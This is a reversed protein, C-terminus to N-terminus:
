STKPKGTKTQKNQEVSESQVVKPAKIKEIVEKKAWTFYKEFEVKFNEANQVESVKREIIRNLKGKFNPSVIERLTPDVKSIVFEKFYTKYLTEEKSNITINHDPILENLMETVSDEIIKNPLLDEFEPKDINEVGYQFIFIDREIYDKYKGELFKKLDNAPKDNDLIFIWKSVLQIPKDEFYKQIDSCKGGQYFNCDEEKFPKDNKPIINDYLHQFLRVDGDGEFVFNAKKTPNLGKKLDLDLVKYLVEEQMFYGIRGMQSPEISTHEADKRLIIHRDFNNRDILFISHTAYIVVNNGKKSIKILEDLMFRVGSPHLHTEPEDLLLITNEIVKHEAEAGITLLFSLFVKCGQSREEMKYYSAGKKKPDVIQIIIQPQELSIDIRQDYDNWVRKIYENVNRNLEDEMRKRESTDTQIEKIKEFLEEITNIKLGIRFVNVLPRSIENLSKKELIKSFSTESELIYKDNNEWFVVKPIFSFLKTQITNLIHGNITELSNDFKDELSQSLFFNNKVEKELELKIKEVKIKLEESLTTEANFISNQEESRNGLVPLAKLKALSSEKLAENKFIDAKLAEVKKSSSNILEELNFQSAVKLVNAKEIECL